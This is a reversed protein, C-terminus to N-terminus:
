DILDKIKTVNKMNIVREIFETESMRTYMIEKSDVLTIMIYFKESLESFVDKIKTDKVVAIEKIPLKQIKKMKEKSHLLLQSFSISVQTKEKSVSFILFCCLVMISVNFQSFLVSVFIFVCIIFTFIESICVSMTVAKYYGIKSELICRLIRGGDLPYIPIINILCISANSLIIYDIYSFSIGKYKLYLFFSTIIGSGFPGSACLFVENVSSLKETIKINIGFPLIVIRKVTIKMKVAYLLHFIEHLSLSVYSILVYELADFVGCVFFFAITFTSIYVNKIKIM